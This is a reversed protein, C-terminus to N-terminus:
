LTAPANSFCRGYCKHGKLFSQDYPVFKKMISTGISLYHILKRCLCEETMGEFSPIWRM